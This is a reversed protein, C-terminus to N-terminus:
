IALDKIKNKISVNVLFKVSNWLEIVQAYKAEVNFTTQNVSEPDLSIAM